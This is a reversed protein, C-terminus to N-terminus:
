RRWSESLSWWALREWEYVCTKAWERQQWWSEGFISPDRVASVSWRYQPLRSRLIWRARRTHFDSTVLLVSKAEPYKQALCRAIDPAEQVTSDNAIVCVSIQSKMDGTSRAVFDAADEAYTRGYLEGAPVDLQMQHGYGARLLEMGRWYRRDDHDGALVVIVDSREPHDVVLFKGSRLMALAGLLILTGLAILPKVRKSKWV